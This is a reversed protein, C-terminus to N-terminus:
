GFFAVAEKSEWTKPGWVIEGPVVGQAILIDLIITDGTSIEIYETAEQPWHLCEFKKM